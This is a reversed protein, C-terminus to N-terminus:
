IIGRKKLEKKIALVDFKYSVSAGPNYLLLAPHRLCLGLVDVKLPVIRGCLQSVSVRKSEFDGLTKLAVEGMVVIVKPNVIKIEDLLYPYCNDIEEQLPTDVFWQGFENKRWPICKIVNTIYVDERTLGLESLVNKDFVRGAPGIFPIGEKDEETGPAEGIFMISNFKGIGFVINKRKKSIKCKKCHADPVGVKM